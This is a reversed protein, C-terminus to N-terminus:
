RIKKRGIFWFVFIKDFNINTFINKLGLNNILILVINVRM